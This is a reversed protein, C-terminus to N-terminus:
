FPWWTPLRALKLSFASIFLCIILLALNGIAGLTNNVAVIVAAEGAKAGKHRLYRYNTSLGGIGAPVLRNIFNAALQVLLVEAFKLPRRSLYIYTLSATFFTALSAVLGLTLWNFNAHILLKAANHFRSFQPLLIYIALLSLGLWLWDKSIKLRLSKTM